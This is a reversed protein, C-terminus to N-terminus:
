YGSARKDYTFCEAMSFPCFLAVVVVVVVSQASTAAVAATYLTLLALSPRCAHVRASHIRASRVSAGVRSGRLPRSAQDREGEQRAYNRLQADCCVYRLGFIMFADTIAASFIHLPSCLYQCLLALVNATLRNALTYLGSASFISKPRFLRCRRRWKRILLPPEWVLTSVPGRLHVTNSWFLRPPAKCRLLQSLLCAKSACSTRLGQCWFTFPRTIDSVYIFITNRDVSWQQSSKWM